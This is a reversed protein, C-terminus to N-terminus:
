GKLFHSCEVSVSLQNASSASLMGVTIVQQCSVVLVACFGLWWELPMASSLVSPVTHCYNPRIFGNWVQFVRKFQWRLEANQQRGLTFKQM